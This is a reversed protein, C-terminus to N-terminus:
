IGLKNVEKKLWLGRLRSEYSMFIERNTADKLVHYALHKIEDSMDDMDHLVKLCKSISYENGQKTTLPETLIDINGLYSTNSNQNFADNGPGAYLCLRKSPKEVAGSGHNGTRGSLPLVQGKMVPCSGLTIHRKLHSTGATKSCAFIRKCYNCCARTCGDSDTETTFHEWIISNKRRRRATTPPADPAAEATDNGHPMEIGQAMQRDHIAMQNCRIVSCGHDMRSGPVIECGHRSSTPAAEVTYTGHTAEIGQVMERGEIVMQNCHIMQDSHDMENSCRSPTPPTMEATGNDHNREIGQVMESDYIVTQNCNIMQGGHDSSAMESGCRSKTRIVSETTDNGHTKQIGQVMECGHIVMQNYHIIDGVHGLKSIPIKKSRRVMKDCQVGVMMNMETEEIVLLNQTVVDVLYNITESGTEVLVAPPWPMQLPYGLASCEFEANICMKRLNIAFQHCRDWCLLALGNTVVHVQHLQADRGLVQSVPVKKEPEWTKVAGDEKLLWVQLHLNNISGVLGVLCCVGDDTDGIAYMSPQFFTFPLGLISFEVTAMDLLLLSADEYRWFILRDSHMAQDHQPRKINKVWQHRHWQRTCSDYEAARVMQDRGRHQLSVVRFSTADDSHGQLLCESIFTGELPSNQPLWLPERGSVPDYVARSEGRSLLLRNSHCDLLRWEPHSGLGTLNFDGARVFKALARDSRVSDALQFSPLGAHARPVYLGLLPSSAHRSRYRRLFGPSSAVQRWRRSALAARVLAAPSPLRLLIEAVAHLDDALSTTTTPGGGGNTLQAAM